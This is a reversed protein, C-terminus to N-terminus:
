RSTGPEPAPGPRHVLNGQKGGQSRGKMNRIHQRRFKEEAIYLQAVKKSPLVAKLRDPEGACCCKNSNKLDLYKTLLTEIEKDSADGKDIAEELNRYARMLEIQYDRKEKEIQNYVPWFVAAEEPTLQLANTIFAIKESVMKDRWNGNINRQASSDLSCLTLLAILAVTFLNQKM